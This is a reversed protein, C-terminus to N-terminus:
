GTLVQDDTTAHLANHGRSRARAQATVEDEDVHCRADPSYEFRNFHISIQNIGSTVDPPMLLLEIDTEELLFESDAHNWHHTM